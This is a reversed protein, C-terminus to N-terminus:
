LGLMDAYSHALFDRASDLRLRAALSNLRNQSLVNVDPTAADAPGMVAEFEVFAGLGDVIRLTNASPSLFHFPPPLM